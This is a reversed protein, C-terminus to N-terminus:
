KGKITQMLSKFAGFRKSGSVAPTGRGAQEAPSFGMRTLKNASKVERKGRSSPTGSLPATSVRHLPSGLEVDTDPAELSSIRSLHGNEPEPLPLPTCSRSPHGDPNYGSTITQDRNARFVASSQSHAAFPEHKKASDVDREISLRSSLLPPPGSVSRSSQHSRGTEDCSISNNTDRPSLGEATSPRRPVNSKTDVRPRGFKHELSHQREVGDRRTLVDFKPISRGEHVFTDSKSPPTEPQQRDIGASRGEEADKQERLRRELALSEGYAALRASLPSRGSSGTGPSPDSDLPMQLIDQQAKQVLAEAQAHSSISSISIDPPIHYRREHLSVSVGDAFSTNGNKLDSIRLGEEHLGETALREANREPSSRSHLVGATTSLPTTITNSGGSGSTTGSLSLQPNFSDTTSTSSVSDGRSRNDAPSPIRLLKPGPPVSEAAGPFIPPPKNISFPFDANILPTPGEVTPSETSIIPSLSSESSSAFSVGIQSPNAEQAVTDLIPKQNYPLPSGYEFEEDEDENGPLAVLGDVTSDPVLDEKSVGLSLKGPVLSRYGTLSHTSNTSRLVPDRGDIDPGGKGNRGGSGGGSTSEFRLARFAQSNSSLRRHALLISPRSESKGADNNEGSVVVVDDDFVTGGRYGPSGTLSGGSGSRDRTHGRARLLGLRTLPSSSPSSSLKSNEEPLIRTGSVASRSRDRSQPHRQREQQQQQVLANHIDAALPVTSHPPSPIAGVIKGNLSQPTQSQSGARTSADSGRHFRFGTRSFPSPSSTPESLNTTSSHPQHVSTASNPSNTPLGTASGSMQPPSSNPLHQSTEASQGSESSQARKFINLLSYKSGLRRGVTPRGSSTNLDLEEREAGMGASRPRRPSPSENSNPISTKRIRSPGSTSPYLIQPLSPRRAGGGLPNLREDDSDPVPYFTYESKFPSSPPTSSTSQQKPDVSPSRFRNLATDISHKMQIRRRMSLSSETGDTGFSGLRERSGVALGRSDSPRERLDRDKNLMWQQLVEGCELWGNQRALTEPTVGHKDSRDAHAGHLLLLTVVDTNGNAAAFHLPTSGSTGVIPASADRNKDNSYRRPLRPANVDAGHDILLKVVQVNGGACAAHLPLVGDLVSNIPQGHELAYEALGVNGTAAASHLGLSPFETTVNYKAEAKQYTTRLPVPM